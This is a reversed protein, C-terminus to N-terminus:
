SKGLYWVFCLCCWLFLLRPFMSPMLLELGVSPAGGGLWDYVDSDSDDDDETSAEFVRVSDGDCIRHVDWGVSAVAITSCTIRTLSQVSLLM